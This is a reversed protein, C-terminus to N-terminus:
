QGNKTYGINDLMGTNRAFEVLEKRELGAAEGATILMTLELYQEERGDTQLKDTEILEVAEELVKHAEIWHNRKILFRAFRRSEDVAFQAKGCLELSNTYNDVIRCLSMYEEESLVENRLNKFGRAYYKNAQEFDGKHFFKEGKALYPAARQTVTKQHPHFYLEIRPVTDALCLGANEEIFADPPRETKKGHLRDLITQLKELRQQQEGAHM